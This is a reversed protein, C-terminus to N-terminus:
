HHPSILKLKPFYTRYHNVDRTMLPMNKIAAHAGIFFDPLPSLKKGTNKRYKLFVKGALFAAEWPLPVREFINTLLKELEEIKAFGISIEAYIIPNIVLIHDNAYKALTTASWDFWTPDETTIDLIVNSDILIKGPM